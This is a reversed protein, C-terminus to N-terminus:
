RQLTALGTAWDINIITGVNINTGDAAAGNAAAGVFVM